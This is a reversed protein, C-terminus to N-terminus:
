SADTPEVPFAHVEIRPDHGELIFASFSRDLGPSCDTQGAVQAMQSDESFSCVFQAAPYMNGAASHDYVVTGQDVPQWIRVTAEYTLPPHAPLGTASISALEGTANSWTVLASRGTTGLTQEVTANGTLDLGWGSRADADALWDSGVAHQLAVFNLGTAPLDFDNTPPKVFIVTYGEEFSTEGQCQQIFLILAGLPGAGAHQQAAAFPSLGLFFDHADGAEFGSPLLAQLDGRPMQVAIALDPCDIPELATSFAEMSVLASGAGAGAPAEAQSGGEDDALCGSLALAVLAVLLGKSGLGM